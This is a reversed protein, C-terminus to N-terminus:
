PCITAKKAKEALDRDKIETKIASLKERINDLNELETKLSNLLPKGMRDKVVKPIKLIRTNEGSLNKNAVSTAKQLAKVIAQDQIFNTESLPIDIKSVLNDTYDGELNKYIKANEKSLLDRTLTKAIEALQKISQVEQQKLDEVQDKLPVSVDM